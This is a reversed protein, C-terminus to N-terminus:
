IHADLTSVKKSAHGTYLIVSIITQLLGMQQNRDKLLVMVVGILSSIRSRSCRSAAEYLTPARRKLEACLVIIAYM